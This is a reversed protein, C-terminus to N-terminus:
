RCELVGYLAHIYACYAHHLLPVRRGAAMRQGWSELLHRETADSDAVSSTLYPRVRGEGCRRYIFATRPQYSDAM